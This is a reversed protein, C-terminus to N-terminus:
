DVIYVRKNCIYNYTNAQQYIGLVDQLQCKASCATVSVYHRKYALDFHYASVPAFSQIIKYALTSKEVARRSKQPHSFTHGKIWDGTISSIFHRCPVASVNSRFVHSLLM